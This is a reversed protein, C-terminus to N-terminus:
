AKSIGSFKFVFKPDIGYFTETLNTGKIATDTGAFFAGSFTISDGRKVTLLTNFMASDEQILTNDGIDSFANSWTQVRIGPALEVEVYAKGEGNAGVDKVTGTWDQAQLGSGLIAALDRDRQRLAASRQLDTEANQIEAKGQEVRAIFDSQKAPMATQAPAPAVPEPAPAVPEPAPAAVAESEIMAESVGTPAPASSQDGGAIGIVLLLGLAGAVGVGVKKGMSMAPRQPVVQAAPPAPITVTAGPEQVPEWQTGTMNLRYGNVVDGPTYEM